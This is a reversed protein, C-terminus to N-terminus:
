AVFANYILNSLENRSFTTFIFGNCFNSKMKAASSDFCLLEQANQSFMVWLVIEVHDNRGVGHKGAIVNMEQILDALKMEKVTLPM